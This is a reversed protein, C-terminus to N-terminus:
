KGTLFNFVVPYIEKEWKAYGLASPHLGDSIYDEQGTMTQSIPFIDATKLNRKEAEAKIISNYEVISESIGATNNGQAAPSLSYDPITILVLNNPKPMLEQLKDLFESLEDKYREKSKGRFNDNAGILVTVFDPKLREIVPLEKESADAVRYGSVSPNAILKISIGAENLHRVLVNPWRDAEAVGNGITYSDGLAIYTISNNNTTKTEMKKEETGASIYWGFLLLGAVVIGLGILQKTM